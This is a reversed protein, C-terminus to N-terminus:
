AGRQLEIHEGPVSSTSVKSLSAVASSFWGGM